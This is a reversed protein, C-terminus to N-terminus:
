NVHYLFLEWALGQMKKSLSTWEIQIRHVWGLVLEAWHQKVVTILRSSTYEVHYPQLCKCYTLAMGLDLVSCQFNSM